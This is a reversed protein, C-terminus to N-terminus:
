ILLLQGRLSLVHTFGALGDSTCVALVVRFRRTSVSCQLFTRVACPLAPALPEGTFVALCLSLILAVSVLWNLRPSVPLRQACCYWIPVRQDPEPSHAPLYCRAPPAVGLGSSHRDCAPCSAHVFDPTDAPKVSKMLCGLSDATIKPNVRPTMPTVWLSDTV